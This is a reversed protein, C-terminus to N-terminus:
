LSHGVGDDIEAETCSWQRYHTQSNRIKLYDKSKLRKELKKGNKEKEAFCLRDRYAWKEM